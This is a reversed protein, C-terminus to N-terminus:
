QTMQTTQVSTKKPVPTKTTDESVLSELFAQLAKKDQELQDHEQKTGKYYVSAASLNTIATQLRNTQEKTMKIKGKIKSIFWFLLAV